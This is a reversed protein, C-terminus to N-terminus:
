ICKLNLLKFILNCKFNKNPIGSDSIPRGSAPAKSTTLSVMTMSPNMLFPDQKEFKIWLWFFTM